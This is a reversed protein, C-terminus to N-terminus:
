ARNSVLGRLTGLAQRNDVRSWQGLWPSRPRGAARQGWCRWRASRSGSFSRNALSHCDNPAHNRSSSGWTFVRKSGTDVTTNLVTSVATKDPGQWAENISSFVEFLETLEAEAIADQVPVGQAVVLCLPRAASCGFSRTAADVRVAEPEIERTQSFRYFVHVPNERGSDVHNIAPSPQIM